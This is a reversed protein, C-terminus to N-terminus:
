VSPLRYQPRGQSLDAGSTGSPDVINACARLAAAVEEDSSDGSLTSLESFLANIRGMTLPSSYPIRELSNLLVPTMLWPAFAITKDVNAQTLTQDSSKHNRKLQYLIIEIPRAYDKMRLLAASNERTALAAGALFSLSGAINKASKEGLLVIKAEDSTFSPVRSQLVELGSVIVQIESEGEVLTTFLDQSLGCGKDLIVLSEMIGSLVKGNVGLLINENAATFLDWKLLLTVCDMYIGFSRNGDRLLIDLRTANLLEREHLYTILGEFFGIERISLISEVRLTNLEFDFTILKQLVDSVRTAIAAHASVLPLVDKYPIELQKLQLLLHELGAAYYPNKILVLAVDDDLSLAKQLASFHVGLASRLKPSLAIWGSYLTSANLGFTSLTPTWEVDM